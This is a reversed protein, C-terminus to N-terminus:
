FPFNEGTFNRMSLFFIQLIKDPMKLWPLIAQKYLKTINGEIVRGHLGFKGKKMNIQKLKFLELNKDWLNQPNQQIEKTTSIKM